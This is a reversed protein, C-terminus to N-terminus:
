MNAPPHEALMSGDQCYTKLLDESYFGKFALASYLTTAAHGKSLIFRDRLPDKPKSPDIQVAHWYAATVIDCCSLSSGLHASSADHSMQIVQGRLRAAMDKLMKVDPERVAANM